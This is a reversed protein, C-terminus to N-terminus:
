SLVRRQLLNHHRLLNCWRVKGVEKDEATDDKIIHIFRKSLREITVYRFTSYTDHIIFNTCTNIFYNILKLQWQLENLYLKSM